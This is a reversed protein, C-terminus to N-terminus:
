PAATTATLMFPSPALLEVPLGAAKVGDAIEGRWDSHIEGSLYIKWVTSM